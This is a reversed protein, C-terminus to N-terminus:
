RWARVSSCHISIRGRGAARGDLERQGTGVPDQHEPLPKHGIRKAIFDANTTGPQRKLPRRRGRHPFVEGVRGVGVALGVAEQRHVVFAPHVPNGHPFVHPLLDNHALAVNAYFDGGVQRVGPGVGGGMECGGAPLRVVRQEFQLNIQGALVLRQPLNGEGLVRQQAEVGDVPPIARDLEPIVM